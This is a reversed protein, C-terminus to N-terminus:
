NVIGKLYIESFEQELEKLSREDNKYWHALGNLSSLILNSVTNPNQMRFDGQKMGEKIINEFKREYDRIMKQFDQHFPNTLFKWENWMVVSAEKHHLVVRIHEQIAVRLKNNTNKEKEAKELGKIFTEAMKFCIQSLIHEKSKFHSYISPAEIGVKQALDRVSSSAYGRERYMHVAEELILEKRSVLGNNVKRPTKLVEM